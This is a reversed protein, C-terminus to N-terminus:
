ESMKLCRWPYEAINLWPWAYQPVNFCTWTYECMNVLGYLGEMHFRAMNLVQAYKSGSSKKYAKWVHLMTLCVWLRDLSKWPYKLNNLSLSAYKAVNVPTCTCFPLRPPGRTRTLDSITGQNQSSIGQIHGDKLYEMWFTTKITDVLFFGLINRQTGKKEQTKIFHKDFHGLEM